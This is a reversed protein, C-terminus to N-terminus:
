NSIDEEFVFDDFFSGDDNGLSEFMELMAITARAEQLGGILTPYKTGDNCNGEVWAVLDKTASITGSLDDSEGAVSLREFIPEFSAPMSGVPGDPFLDPSVLAEEWAECYSVVVDGEAQSVTDGGQGGQGGVFVVAAVVVGVLVVAGAIIGAILGGKGKPPVNGGGFPTPDDHPSFTGQPAYPTLNSM